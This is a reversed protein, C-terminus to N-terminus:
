RRGALRRAQDQGRPALPDVRPLPPASPCQDLGRGAAGPHPDSRGPPLGGHQEHGPAWRCALDQTGAQIPVARGPLEGSPREVAEGARRHPDARACTLMGVVQSAQQGRIGSPFEARLPLRAGYNAGGPCAPSSHTVCSTGGGQVVLRAATHRDGRSGRQATVAPYAPTSGLSFPPNLTTSTTRRLPLKPLTMRFPVRTNGLGLGRSQAGAQAIAIFSAMATPRTHCGRSFAPSSILFTSLPIGPGRRERNRPGGDTRVLVRITGGYHISRQGDPQWPCAWVRTAWSAASERSVIRQEKPPLHLTDGLSASPCGSCISKLQHELPM